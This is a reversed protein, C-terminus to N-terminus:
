RSGTALYTDFHRCEHLTIPSLGARVWATIARGGVTPPDFALTPTRGFVLGESRGARLKHAILHERLVAAIPVTRKGARSKPEVVGVRVDWSREVRILGAALELDEWRLAVLEGRRLGAYM